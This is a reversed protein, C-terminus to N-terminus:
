SFKCTLSCTTRVVFGGSSRKPLQASAKESAARVFPARDAENGHSSEATDFLADDCTRHIASSAELSAPNIDEKSLAENIKSMGTGSEVNTTSENEELGEEEESLNPLYKITSLIQRLLFLKILYHFIHQISTCV